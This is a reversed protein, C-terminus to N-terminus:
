ILGPVQHVALIPMPSGATTVTQLNGFTCRLLPAAALTWWIKAVLHRISKLRHGVGHPRNKRRAGCRSTLEGELKDALADALADALGAAAILGSGGAANGGV